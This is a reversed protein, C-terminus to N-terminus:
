NIQKCISKEKNSLKSIFPPNKESYIRVPPPSAFRFYFLDLIVFFLVFTIFTILQAIAASVLVLVKFIFLYVSFAFFYSSVLIIVLTWLYSGSKHNPIPLTLDSLQVIDWLKYDNKLFYKRVNNMIRFHEIQVRRLRGIIGVVITGILAAVLLLFAVVGEPITFGSEEAEGRLLITLGAAAVGGLSLFFSTIRSRLTDIHYTLQASTEYEKLLFQEEPTLGNSM